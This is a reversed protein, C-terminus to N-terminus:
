YISSEQMLILRNKESLDDELQPHKQIPHSEAMPQMCTPLFLVGDQHQKSSDGASLTHLRPLTINQSPLLRLLTYHLVTWMRFDAM